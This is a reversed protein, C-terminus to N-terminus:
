QKSEGVRFFNARLSIQAQLLGATIGDEFNFIPDRMLEPFDHPNLVDDSTLHPIRARALRLVKERQMRIMEELHTNMQEMTSESISM